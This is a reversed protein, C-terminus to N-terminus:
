ESAQGKAAGDTIDKSESLSGVQCGIEGKANTVVTGKHATCAAKLAAQQRTNLPQFYVNGTNSKSANYNVAAEASGSVMLLATACAGIFSAQVVSKTRM